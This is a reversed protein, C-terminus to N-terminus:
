DRAIQLRLITRGDKSATGPIASSGILASEVESPTATPNAALFLAAAGSVHPAAMSTGSMSVIGGPESGISTSLIALGPAWLDVCGGFNSFAAEHDSADVAAVTVIGSISGNLSPSALCADIADNGAAISFFLGSAAAARIAGDLAPSEGSGLSMNVVAPKTATAAVWDLGKITIASSGVGECNVVKVGVLAVGPAVGRVGIDNNRAGITGAVHTGHGNCDTNPGEAFSVQKVVNLDPNSGDIGSDIVYVTVGTVFRWVSSDDTTAHEAGVRFVGWPLRQGTQAVDVTVSISDVLPEFRLGEIQEETLDAAFGLMVKSYGFTALFGHTSELVQIAGKVEPSLYGWAEPDSAERADLEFRHEFADLTAGPRLTVLSPAASAGTASLGATLAVFVLLSFRRM